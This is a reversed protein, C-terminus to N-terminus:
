TSNSGFCLSEVLNDIEDLLTQKEAAMSELLLLLKKSLLCHSTKKRELVKKQSALATERQDIENQLNKIKRLSSELYYKERRITYNQSNEMEKLTHRLNNLTDEQTQFDGLRNKIDQKLDSQKDEIAESLKDMMEFIKDTKVEVQDTTDTSINTDSTTCNLVINSSHSDVLDQLTNTTTSDLVSDTSCDNTDTVTNDTYTDGM